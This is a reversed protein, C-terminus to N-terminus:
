INIFLNIFENLVDKTEPSAWFDAKYQDYDALRSKRAKIEVREVLGLQKDQEEFTYKSACVKCNIKPDYWHSKTPWPHDPTCSDIIIQGLGCPCPGEYVQSRDTGM